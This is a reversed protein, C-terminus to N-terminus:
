KTNKSVRGMATKPLNSPTIYTKDTPSVSPSPQPTPQEEPEEQSQKQMAAKVDEPATVTPELHQLFANIKEKAMGTKMMIEAITKRVFPDKIKKSLLAVEEPTNVYTVAAEVQKGVNIMNELDAIFAAAPSGAEPKEEIFFKMVSIADQYKTTRAPQVEDDGYKFPSTTYAEKITQKKEAKVQEILKKLEKLDM